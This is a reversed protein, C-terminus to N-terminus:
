SEVRCVVVSHEPDNMVHAEGCICYIHDLDQVLLGRGLDMQWCGTQAYLGSEQQFLCWVLPCGTVM